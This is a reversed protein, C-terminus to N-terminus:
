RPLSAIFRAPDAIDVELIWLDSDQRQRKALYDSFETKKDIDEMCSLTWARSGDLQPMREYFQASSGSEITVLAITGADREGKALVTAFGGRAEVLRILASVELHAPLRSDPM